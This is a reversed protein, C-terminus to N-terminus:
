ILGDKIRTRAFASSLPYLPPSCHFEHMKQLLPFFLKKSTSQSLYALLQPIVYSHLYIPHLSLTHPFIAPIPLCKPPLSSVLLLPFKRYDIFTIRIFGKLFPLTHFRLQGDRIARDLTELPSVLTYITSNNALPIGNFGGFM